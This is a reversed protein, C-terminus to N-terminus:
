HHIRIEKDSFVLMNFNEFYYQLMEQHEPPFNLCSQYMPATIDPIDNGILGSEICVKHLESGLYPAFIAVSVSDPACQRNLIITKIIQKETEHPFGIINNATTRIGANRCWKFVRKVMNNSYFRNLMKRRFNEDGCEIGISITVCGARKLLKLKEPNITEIRTQIMFPLRISSEWSIAFEELNRLSLFNEDCFAILQLGYQEKINKVEQIFQEIGRSRMRRQNKYLSNIQKNACFTCSYPCGRTLEVYGTKWSNGIFPRWLHEENFISYDHAPLETLPIPPMLLNQIREGNSFYSLNPIAYPNRGNAVNTSLEVIAKEGEGIVVADIDLSSLVEAPAITPMVGGAVVFAKSYNKVGQIIKKTLHYNDQLLSIAIIDPEAIKVKKIFDERFDSEHFHTFINSMDVKQVIGLEERRDNDTDTKQYFTADFIDVTHGAKKLCASLISIGIPIRRIGSINPYLFLVKAKM